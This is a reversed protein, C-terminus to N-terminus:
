NRLLRFAVFFSSDWGMPCTNMTGFSLPKICPRSTIAQGKLLGCICYIPVNHKLPLCLNRHHGHVLLAHKIPLAIIQQLM